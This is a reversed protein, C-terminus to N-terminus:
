LWGRTASVPLAKALEGALGVRDALRRLLVVGAQGVLGRGDAAVDRGRAWGIRNVRFTSRRSRNQTRLVRMKAPSHAGNVM